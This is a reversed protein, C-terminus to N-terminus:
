SCRVSNPRDSNAMPNRQCQIENRVVELSRRFLTLMEHDETAVQALCRVQPHHNLKIFEKLIVFVAQQTLPILGQIQQNKSQATTCNPNDAWISEDLKKKSVRDVLKLRTNSPESKLVAVSRTTIPEPFNTISVRDSEKSTPDPWDLEMGPDSRFVAVLATNAVEALKVRSVRDAAWRPPIGPASGALAGLMTTEVLELNRSSM